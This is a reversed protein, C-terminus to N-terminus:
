CLRAEAQTRAFLAAGRAGSSGGHQNIRVAPLPLGPLTCAQLAAAARPALGPLHSLGGGLVIVEPDLMLHLVALTEGLIGCWSRYIREAVPDDRGLAAALDEGSLATGCIHTAIRSLGPGALYREICGELGCGCPILPLGLGGLSRQSLGIHGIEVALGSARPLPQGDLCAGGGVGTGLILGAMTRAGDAAGGNAESCAFAMGDNLLPVPRGVQAALDAGVTQGNTPLNAARAAGTRPDVAGALSLGIPIAAGAETELWDWATRLASLFPAYSGRPTPWRRTARPTLRADFLRAEIKTGGIDIAGCGQM